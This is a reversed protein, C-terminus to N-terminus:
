TYYTLLSFPSDLSGHLMSCHIIASACGRGCDLRTPGGSGLTEICTHDGGAVNLIWSGVQVLVESYLHLSQLRSAFIQHGLKLGLECFATNLEFPHALVFGTDHINLVLLSRLVLPLNSVFSLADGEESFLNIRNLCLHDVRRAISSDKIELGLTLIQLFSKVRLQSIVLRLLIHEGTM